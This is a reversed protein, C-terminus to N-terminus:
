YYGKMRPLDILLLCRHYGDLRAVVQFTEPLAGCGVEVPSLSLLIILFLVFRLVNSIVVLRVTVADVVVVGGVVAFLVVATVLVFAVFVVAFLVVVVVVVKDVVGASAVDESDDVIGIPAGIVTM